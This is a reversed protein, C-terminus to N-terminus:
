AYEQFAIIINFNIDKLFKQLKKELYAGTKGVLCLGPFYNVDM